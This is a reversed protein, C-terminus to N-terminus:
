KNKSEICEPSKRHHKGPYNNGDFKEWKKNILSDLIKMQDPSCEQKIKNFHKYNLNMLEIEIEVIKKTISDHEAKEIFTTSVVKFLEKKLTEQKLRLDKIQNFYEKRIIKFKEVQNPTANLEKNLIYGFGEGKNHPPKLDEIINKSRPHLPKKTFIIIGMFIANVALLLIIIYSIIKKM